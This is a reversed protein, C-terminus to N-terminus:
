VLDRLSAYGGPLKVDSGSVGEKSGFKTAFKVFREKDEIKEKIIKISEEM